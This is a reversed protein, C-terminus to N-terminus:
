LLAAVTSFMKRTKAESISVGVTLNTEGYDRPDWDSLLGTGAGVTVLRSNNLGSSPLFPKIPAPLVGSVM